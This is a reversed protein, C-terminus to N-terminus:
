CPICSNERERSTRQHKVFRQNGDIFTESSELCNNFVRQQFTYSEDSQEDARPFAFTYKFPNQPTAKRFHDQHCILPKLGSELSM